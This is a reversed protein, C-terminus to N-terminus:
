AEMEKRKLKLYREKLEASGELDLSLPMTKTIERICTSKLRESIKWGLSEKHGENECAQYQYTAIMSLIFAPNKSNIVEIENSKLQNNPKSYIERSPYYVLRPTNSRKYEHAKDNENYRSNVSEYNQNILAQGVQTANLITGLINVGQSEKSIAYNVLTDIIENEVIYASM